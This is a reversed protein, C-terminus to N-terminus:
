RNRIVSIVDPRRARTTAKPKLAHTRKGFPLAIPKQEPGEPCTTRVVHSGSRAEDQTRRMQFGVPAGGDLAVLLHHGPEALFRKTAAETPPGDFLDAGAHVVREDGPGLRAIRM